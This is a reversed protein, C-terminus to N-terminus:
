KNLHLTFNHCRSSVVNSSFVVAKTAAPATTTTTAEATTTAAAATLGIISFVGSPGIIFSFPTFTSLNLTFSLSPPLVM